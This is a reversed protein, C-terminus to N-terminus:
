TKTTAENNAKRKELLDAVETGLEKLFDHPANEDAIITIIGVGQLDKKKVSEGAALAMLDDKNLVVRM